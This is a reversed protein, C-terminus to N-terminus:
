GGCRRSRSSSAMPRATAGGTASPTIRSWAAHRSAYVSRPWSACLLGPVRRSSSRQAGAGTGARGPRRHRQRPGLGLPLGLMWVAMARARQTKPFLDGILSTSAPSCTAEGVGVGLRVAVLMAFSQAAGSLATLISWVFVGGALIKRRDTSDSLRGLPVGVVAYLLTFVTGLLGLATDSLGWDLRILEGVAGIIQRDFFNMSTSRSSCSSPTCPAPQWPHDGEQPIRNWGSQGAELCVGCPFAHGALVSVERRSDRRRRHPAAGRDPRGRRAGGGTGPRRRAVAPRARGLASAVQKASHTIRDAADAAYVRAIDRTVEAPAATRSAAMKETRALASETAYIEIVVDAIAGLVEQEDKLGEGCAAAAENLAALALAKERRRARARRRAPRRDPHAGRRRRGATERGQKLLRTPVIVRNIENTGEYIRTIRADRYGREVPFERSYGNGGFM